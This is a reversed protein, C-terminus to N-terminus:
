CSHQPKRIDHSEVAPLWSHQHESCIFLIKMNLLM